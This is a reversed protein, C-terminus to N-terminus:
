GCSADKVSIPPPSGSLEVSQADYRVMARPYVLLVEQLSAKLRTTAARLAAANGLPPSIGLQAMLAPWSLRLPRKLIRLRYTLFIYLDLAITSRLARVARLDIPVGHTVCELFFDHNLHLDGLLLSGAHLRSARGFLPGRAALLYNHFTAPSQNLNTITFLSHFLKDLQDAYRTISGNAGRSGPIGLARFFASQSLGLDIVPAQTQVARTTLWILLIRAARGHPLGFTPDAVVRLKMRGGDREYVADASGLHPISLLALTSPLYGIAGARLASVTRIQEHAEFLELPRALPYPAHRRNERAATM